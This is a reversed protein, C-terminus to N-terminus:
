VVVLSMKKRLHAPSIARRRAPFRERRILARVPLAFVRVLWRTPYSGHYLNESAVLSPALSILTPCDEIRAFAM